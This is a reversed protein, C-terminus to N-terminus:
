PAEVTRRWFFDENAAWDANARMDRGGNWKVWTVHLDNFLHNAGAPAGGREKHALTVFTASEVPYEHIMDAMLAWSAPDEPTIPSFSPDALSWKAAGGVYNYNMHFVYGDGGNPQGDHALNPVPDGAGPCSFIRLQLDPSNLNVQYNPKAGLRVVEEWEHAVYWGLLTWVTQDDPFPSGTRPERQHPYRRYEEAYLSLALGCQKLNNLCTARKASEKARGLAPLLLSALIGIIAIVVLLEVLTFGLNIKAAYSSENPKTDM